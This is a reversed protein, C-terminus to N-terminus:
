NLEKALLKESEPLWHLPVATIAYCRHSLITENTNSEWGPPTGNPARRWWCRVPPAATSTRQNSKLVNVARLHSTINTHSPVRCRRRWHFNIIIKNQNPGFDRSSDDTGFWSGGTPGGCVVVLQQHCWQAAARFAKAATQQIYYLQERRRFWNIWNQLSKSAAPSSTSQGIEISYTQEITQKGVVSLSIQILM